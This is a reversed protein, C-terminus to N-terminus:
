VVASAWVVCLARKGHAALLLREFILASLDVLVGDGIAVVDDTPVNVVSDAAVRGLAPVTEQREV